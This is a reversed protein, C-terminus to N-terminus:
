TSLQLRDWAPLVNKCNKLEPLSPLQSNVYKIVDKHSTLHTLHTLWVNQPALKAASQLAELITFHTSHEEIRLGDIVLHILNGSNQKIIDISSQPLDSVDTLYAISQPKGDLEETLIWGYVPLNGHMMPVPTIKTTGFTFQKGPAPTNLTIKAVGGGQIVPKFIYDFRNEVDKKTNENTYIPIPPRNLQEIAKPHTPTKWFSSSFIRLDDIGHLHDAHSHTLLVCDVNKINNELAQLRFEPGCDILISKGDNTTIYASCRYRKDKPDSSKCVKCDCGIVPVGHSTGTGLFTLKM